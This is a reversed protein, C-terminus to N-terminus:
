YVLQQQVNLSETKSKGFRPISLKNKILAELKQFAMRKMAWSWSVAEQPLTTKYINIWLPALVPLDTSSLFSNLDYSVNVRISGM